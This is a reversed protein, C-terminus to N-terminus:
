VDEGRREVQLSFNGGLQLELRHYGAQSMGGWSWVILIRYELRAEGQEMTRSVLSINQGARVVNGATDQRAPLQRVLSTHQTVGPGTFATLTHTGHPGSRGDGVSAFNDLKSWTPGPPCLCDSCDLPITNVGVLHPCDM